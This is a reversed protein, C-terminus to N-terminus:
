VNYCSAPPIHERWTKMLLHPRLIHFLKDYYIKIYHLFGIYVVGIM